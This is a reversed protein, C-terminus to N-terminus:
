LSGFRELFAGVHYGDALAHHLEVSVPMLIQGNQHFYKGFVIRPISDHCDFKRAHQVSTFSVWPVASFYIMDTRLHPTFERAEKQRDITARSTELFAAQGPQWPIFTFIFSQDPLIVTAGAHVEPYLMVEDGALRYRFEPMSNAAKLAQYLCYLFFSQGSARAKELLHTVDVNATLNFFPIDFDRFFTYPAKRDWTTLDIKQPQNM